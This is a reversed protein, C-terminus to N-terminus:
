GLWKELRQSGEAWLKQGNAPDLSAPSSTKRRMLHLYWGTDGALDPALGLYLVPDAAEEPARFFTGMVPDLLPKFIEPVERAIKSNVPGPCLSHVAVSPGHPTQLRRALEVAYTVLALKSAGYRNIADTLGWERFDFDFSDASRHTESAVFVIRPIASGRRGNQAFVDNPIVGSRLLRQTLVHNAVYHVGLMMEFGQRTQRAKKTVVGANCVLLDLTVRRRALEDALAAVSDLDALDVKLMEISRNGTERALEEGLEPIQSRAPLLLRAGRRALDAAVAKGLGSTAGTVMVTKGDLRQDGGVPLLADQRRFLDYIGTATAAIAGKHGIGTAQRQEDADVDANKEHRIDFRRRYEGMAEEVLTPSLGFDRCRYVHRGYRHQQDRDLVVRMATEAAPALELGAKAYIRRVQALPDELLDYYSVDVFSDAKGGDRVALSHDVMRRVKRLWHRGVERPDVADSFIARGHAVMSCFSATTTLPDRHTQVVVADPFAALLEKMYEMHHPTKLVWFEGSRQWLLARLARAFYRYAGTSDQQELWAAYTPVRLIAEASQSMFALDLLLVDEEPAAAEIPHIAFFEPYITKAGREAWKAAALRKEQGGRGEGDMPAPNIAEWSALSRARPDAAILRQLLTTGSRQLGAIVIPKRLPIQEIEPHDRYLGEIRLRNALTSVLRGRMITRGLTHLRAERDISEALVRLAELAGPDGFESLGTSKQAARLLSDPDLSARLGLEGVVAGVGNFLRLPAPRHPHAYDTSTVLTSRSM